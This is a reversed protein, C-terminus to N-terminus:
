LVYALESLQWRCKQRKSLLLGDVFDTTNEFPTKKEYSFSKKGGLM